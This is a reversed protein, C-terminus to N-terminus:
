FLEYTHLYKLGNNIIIRKYLHNKCIRVSHHKPLENFTTCDDMSEKQKITENSTMQKQYRKNDLELSNNDYKEKM